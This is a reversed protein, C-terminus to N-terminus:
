LERDVIADISSAVAALLLQEREAFQRLV